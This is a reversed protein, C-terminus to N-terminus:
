ARATKKLEEAVRVFRVHERVPDFRSDSLLRLYEMATNETSLSSNCMSIRDDNEDKPRVLISTPWKERPLIVHNGLIGDSFSDFSEIHVLMKELADLASEEEGHKVYLKAQWFYGQVLLQEQFGYDGDEYFLEVFSIIKEWLVLLEEDTFLPHENKFAQILNRLRWIFADFDNAVQNRLDDAWEAGRLTMRRCQERTYLPQPVTEALNKAIEPKGVRMYLDCLNGVAYNQTDADNVGERVKEFLAISEELVAPDSSYQLEFALEEMLKYADPFEKLGERYLEIAETRHGTCSLERAASYIEDIRTDKAAVDIGLLVDASVRFLNALLPLQSIDPATRDCEWQSVANATIGLFDALQEQTMDRDRRLMKITSGISM